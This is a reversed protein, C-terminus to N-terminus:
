WLNFEPAPAGVPADIEPTTTPETEPPAETESPAEAPEVTKAPRGRRRRAQPAQPAQPTGASAQPPTALPPTAEDPYYEEAIDAAQDILEADPSSLLLVQREIQALEKRYEAKEAAIRIAGKYLDQMTGAYEVGVVYVTQSKGDTPSTCVKPQVTLRLPIGALIGGTLTRILSLSSLIGVTSNYGTTRFKWVGGVSGAGEIICSLTGNIKCRDQGTYTPEQRYCPCSVVERGNKQPNLQLANEADGSCFLTKGVYCAYRAQFNAELGDFMLRIPIARPKDGIAAHIEQDRCFNGTEDRELTTVVFYDLKTPLQYTNGNQARRLEGKRGIKIKGRETLGPLINKVIPALKIM